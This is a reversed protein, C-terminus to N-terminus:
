HLQAANPAIKFINVFDDRVVIYHAIATSYANFM